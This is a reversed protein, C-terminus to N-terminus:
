LTLYEEFTLWSHLNYPWTNKIRPKHSLATLLVYRPRNSTKKTKKGFFVNKPTIEQEFSTKWQFAWNNIKHLNNNLENASTDVNYIVSLLFSNDASLKTNSSLGDM